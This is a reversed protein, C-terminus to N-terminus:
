HIREIESGIQAKGSLHHPLNLSVEQHDFLFESKIYEGERSILENNLALTLMRRINSPSGYRWRFSLYEVADEISVIPGRSRFIHALVLLIDKGNM